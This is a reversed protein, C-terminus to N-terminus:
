EATGERGCGPRRVGLIAARAEEGAVRHGGFRVDPPDAAVLARISCSGYQLPVEAPRPKMSGRWTGFCEVARCADLGALVTLVYEPAADLMALLDALLLPYGCAQGIERDGVLRQLDQAHYEADTVPRVVLLVGCWERVITEPDPPDEGPRVRMQLICHLHAHVRRQKACKATVEVCRVGGAVHTRWWARGRLRAWEALLRRVAARPSEGDIDRHTLTLFVLEGGGAHALARERLRQTLETSRQEACAPCWRDRCPRRAWGLTAGRRAAMALRCARWRLARSKGGRTAPLGALTSELRGTYRLHVRLVQGARRGGERERREATERATEMGLGALMRDDRARATDGVSTEQPDLARTGGEGRGREEKSGAGGPARPEAEPSRGETCTGSRLHRALRGPHVTM